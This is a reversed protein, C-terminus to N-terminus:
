AVWPWVWPTRTSTCSRELSESVCSPVEREPCKSCTALRAAASVVQGLALGGDGPPVRRHRLVTRGDRELREVTRETLLANAFCGGSLAVRPHGVERAVAAAAAALTNHFRAAITGIGAQQDVDDVIAAVLLRWDLVLGIEDAEVAFPYCATEAPDAAHELATAAQAEFTSRHVLGALSAVGDFLRGMSTTVPTNLRRELMRALTRREPESAAALPPLDVREFAEPGFVEWLLAAAVRWPERVAAEGGPLLFPHLRAVRTFGLLDGLLFEGGWVTGDPGYGTGDWVIGLAADFTGADALCSVLHAHHHQVPHLPVGRREAEQRAWRSSPYDPHLDCAIAAPEADYLRLLDAAVGEFCRRAALTSLDGVHQSLFVKDDLSLGVTSKLHGGVGLVSPLPAPMVLPMPAYGRSRRLPLPEGLVMRVVSDDVHRAIPRDHVLFLDAVDGLREWADTVDIAIPEDSRNGSTAVVPGDLQRLLLHHLPTYALMVGLEPSGPAM